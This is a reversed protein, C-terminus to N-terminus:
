PQGLARSKQQRIRREHREIRDWYESSFSDRAMAIAGVPQRGSVLHPQPPPLQIQRLYYKGDMEVIIDVTDKSENVLADVFNDPVVQESGIALLEHLLLNGAKDRVILSSDWYVGDRSASRLECRYDATDQSWIRKTEACGNMCFVLILSCVYASWRNVFSM